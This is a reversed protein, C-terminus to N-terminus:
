QCCEDELVRAMSLPASSCSVRCESIYKRTASLQTALGFDLLRISGAGDDGVGGDLLFINDPKIDGHAVGHAHVEALTSLLQLAVRGM